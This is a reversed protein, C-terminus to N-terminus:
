EKQNMKIIDELTLSYEETEKKPQPKKIDKQPYAQKQKKSKPRPTKKSSLEIIEKYIRNLEDLIQRLKKRIEKRQNLKEKLKTKLQNIENWIDSNKLSQEYEKKLEDIKRIMEKEKSPTYAATSIYFEIKEIKKKIIDPNPIQNKEKPLKQAIAKDLNKIELGIAKLEKLVETKLKTKEELQRKLENIDKM